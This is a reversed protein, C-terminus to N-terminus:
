KVYFSLKNKIYSIFVGNEVLQRNYISDEKREVSKDENYKFKEFDENLL